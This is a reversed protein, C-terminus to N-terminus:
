FLGLDKHISPLEKRSLCHALWRLHHAYDKLLMHSKNAGEKIVDKDKTLVLLMSLVQPNYKIDQPFM